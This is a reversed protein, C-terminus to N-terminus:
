PKEYNIQIDIASDDLRVEYKHEVHSYVNALQHATQFINNELYTEDGFIFHELQGPTYMAM